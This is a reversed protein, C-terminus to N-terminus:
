NLNDAAVRLLAIDEQTYTARIQEENGGLKVNYRHLASQQSKPIEPLKSNGKIKVIQFGHSIAQKHLWIDDGKPCTQLFGDGAEKLVRLFQPPYIVGGVGTAFNIASPKDIEAEQWSGYPAIGDKTLAVAYARHCCIADKNNARAEILGSLWDHPYFVDDDATVLPLDLEQSTVYPYFKKYPGYNDCSLIELGRDQLRKLQPPIDRLVEEEDIWLILRKPLANGAAISEIALHVANIRDGYSTMSVVAEGNSSVIPSKNTAALRQFHCTYRKGNLTKIFKKIEGRISM